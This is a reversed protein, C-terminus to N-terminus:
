NAIYEHIADAIYQNLGGHRNKNINKAFREDEVYTQAMYSLFQSDCNPVQSQLIMKLKEIKPSAEHATVKEQYLQNMEDIFTNLQNNVVEENSEKEAENMSEHQEKYAQYYKTDGYKLAAENEYQANLDFEKMNTVEIEENKDSDFHYKLQQIITNLKDRKMVIYDYNERLVENKFLTDKSFYDKIQSLTLDLERLFLIHQLKAIDEVSYYRYGNDGIQDPILLEKEHYYHLTRLSVGTIDCLEKPSFYTKM